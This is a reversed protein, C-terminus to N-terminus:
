KFMDEYLFRERLVMLIKGHINKGQGNSGNGWYSDRSFKVLSRLGTSMLRNKLNEHSRFKSELINTMINNKISDWDTRQKKCFVDYGEQLSKVYSQNDPDRYAQFAYHANPFTGLDTKVPHPSTNDFGSSYSNSPHKGYKLVKFFIRVFDKQEKNQPSGLKRWKERMEPRLSHYYSTKELAKNPILHKYYCLLCAVLIGSRGHGGKCHVYIKEHYKLSDIIKGIEIILQAFSRWDRPIKHDIIPYKIYKYKTTYPITGRERFGTLDIFHRVGYEELEHVASQTPFSGFLAKGEIFFSCRQM